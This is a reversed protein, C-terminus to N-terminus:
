ISSSRDAVPRRHHRARLARVPSAFLRYFPRVSWGPLRPHREEYRVRARPHVDVLPARLTFPGLRVAVPNGVAPRHTHVEIRCLHKTSMYGYQAPSVLRLPAGHDSTLPEHNLRDALLVDEDLADRIDVISRYEDLGVLSLHTPMAGDALAPEIFRHFFSEFSVGEWCLGTSTWSTVCHFDAILERRPLAALDALSIIAPQAVDGVIEVVPSAPVAPPPRHLDPGFRPFGEVRLQGPPLEGRRALPNVRDKIRLGSSEM